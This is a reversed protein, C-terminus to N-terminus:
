VELRCESVVITKLLMVRRRFENNKCIKLVTDNVRQTPCKGGNILYFYEFIM